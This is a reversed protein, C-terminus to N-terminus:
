WCFFRYPDDWEQPKDLYYSELWRSESAGSRLPKNWYELLLTQSDVGLNALVRSLARAVGRYTRRVNALEGSFEWPVLQCIILRGEKAQALVGEGFIEAGQKVLPLRKPSRNHVDGPSVGCFPTRWLFPEFYGAIYETTKIEVSRPSFPEISGQELGLALVQGGAQIFTAVDARTLTKEVEAGLSLVLLDNTSLGIGNDAPLDFGCRGLHQRGVSGGVYFMRRARRPEWQDVYRLLNSVLIAAAPEGETRGTVDFQCFLILGQGEHFELLPSFQLGFGGDVIPLFDGRAPKEILVSAVVGQNGARWARTVPLGCWEVEPAHRSGITYNLRDSVLTGAGRWNQLLEDSVDAVVPHGPVRVFANRLGYEAVRFGLRKELVASSQEFQIVKLGERVRTIPPLANELTLALKGVILVDAEALNSASEVLTYPVQLRDLLQRTEGRPDFLAVKSRLKPTTPAPVVQLAFQDDQSPANDFQIHARLHYRGPSCAPSLDIRLPLRVQQGPQVIAREKGQKTPSLDIAWNCEARVTMRSNNILILQKTVSEGPAFTHDLSTFKEAKGALYALLPQNNRILAEGATTPIWDAREYSTNMWDMQDDIFDPSFGPRQLRDWDVLLERRVRGAGNRLRWYDGHDWPCLASVGWTRFARLSSTLYGAIIANRDQYDNSAAANRPYDWRHWAHGAALERAEWRLAIRELETIQYAAPGVFQANWEALCLEWPVQAGGFARVGRYWGRYMMWDWFIPVGYECLFLPKVGVTAWHEFWDAMEQAPTFNAYFNVTHMSGLNGSSHHYIVRSSDLGQVIAEARRAKKANNGSWTDRQDHTGDIQDPNMSEITGTSNHSMAYCVVAPHNGAAAVYFAAHTKYGNTSAADAGSWDYQGFHPQSFAVLMGEDDAARLIEAFSLHTGPECGYNHTYVFNIGFSKLRQLSERAGEYTAWAAGIQANDLPVVSLFIRSGNLYFDRGDIWFERFGFREKFTVDEVRGDANLLMLTAESTNEPTHTDWLAEPRWAESFNFRGGNLDTTEFSPSKFEREIRGDRMVQARITYRHSPRLDYLEAEFGIEWRRVSTSVRFQGLRAAPPTGVLYVDGCLGRREVTGEVASAGFTDRNSQMVAKLPVARVLVSLRQPQGIRVAGSLDVEGGPFRVDGVRRDDIWVEAVSNVNELTLTIRRGAWAAPVTFDRESWAARVSSLARSEWQPHKWVTQCDKQLYDTIGPWCGPVKFFGWGGSPVEISASTSPQWRWLGNLSIRERTPTRDRWALDMDWVARVGSPLPVSRGEQGAAGWATWLLITVISFLRM